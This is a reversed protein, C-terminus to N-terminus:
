NTTLSCLVKSVVITNSIIEGYSRMPSVVSAVRSLYVQIGEKHNMKLTEFESRLSQLKIAIIKKDGFYESKIIEWAEKSTKKSSIRAFIDDDLAPQMFFIAKADKKRNDRM